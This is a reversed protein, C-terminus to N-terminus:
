DEDNLKPRKLVVTEDKVDEPEEDFTLDPFLPDLVNDQEKDLSSGLNAYGEDRVKLIDDLSFEPIEDETIKPASTGTLSELLNSKEVTNQILNPADDVSTGYMPSLIPTTNENQKQKERESIKSTTTKLANMDKEDVGFIPSIVPQFEYSSKPYTKKAPKKEEVPKTQQVPAATKKEVPKDAKISGITSSRVPEAERFVSENKKPASVVPEEPFEVPQTVDIRTMSPAAPAAPESTAPTVSVPQAKTKRVVPEEVEDDDIEDYDEDDFEDEEDEFLLNQLKKLM